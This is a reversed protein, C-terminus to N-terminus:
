YLKEELVMGTDANVVVLYDIDCHQEMGIGYGTLGDVNDKIMESFIIRTLYEPDGIRGKGRGVANKVIEFLYDGDYHQYLYIPTKFQKSVVKVQARTGM